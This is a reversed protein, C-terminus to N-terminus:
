YKNQIIEGGSIEIEIQPIPLIEAGKKFDKFVKEGWGIRAIDFFRFGEMALELHRENIIDEFLQDGTSEIYELKARSRILNLYKRAEPEENTLVCAEAYNLYVEALRILRLNLPQNNGYNEEREGPGLYLKRNYFGTRDGSIPKAKPNAALEIQTVELSDILTAKKRVTDGAKDFAEALSKTPQAVGFGITLERPMSMLVHRNGNNVNWSAQDPSNYMNVELISESGHEGATLFQHQYDDVLDYEKLKFLEKAAEKVKDYKKQYLCVRTLMAYAAGKTIRGAYKSYDVEKKSPLVAAAEELDKEIYAYVEEATSRSLTKHDLRLVGDYYPVGGFTKVLEFYSYARLFKAEGIMQEKNYKDYVVGESNHEFDYLLLNAKNICQYTQSYKNLIEGHHAQYQYKEMLAFSQADNNSGSYTADDSLVDGFANISWTYRFDKMDSYTATLRLFAQKETEIKGAIGYGLPDTDLDVCSSSIFLLFTYFAILLKNIKM